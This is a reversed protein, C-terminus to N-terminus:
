DISALRLTMQDAGVVKVATGAALDGECQVRWFTDGLQVRGQGRVVPDTLEFEHGILLTTRQNIPRTDM